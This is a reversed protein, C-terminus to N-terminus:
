AIHEMCSKKDIFLIIISTNKSLLPVLMDNSAKLYQALEYLEQCKVSSGAPSSMMM